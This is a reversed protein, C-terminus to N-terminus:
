ELFDLLIIESVRINPIEIVIKGEEIKWILDLKNRLGVARDLQGAISVILQVDHWEAIEEIPRLTEDRVSAVLHVVIRKGMEQEYATLAIVEPANELRVPPEAGAAWRVAAAILERHASVGFELFRNGLPPAFYVVRGLDGPQSLMVAPFGTQEGLPGYHVAAGGLLSAVVQASVPVVGMQIGGTPILKGVPLQVPLEHEEELLMYVDFGGFQPPESIYFVGFLESFDDASTRWGCEDYMGTEYSAVVGGGQAVFQRILEKVEATHCSANPLVLVQYEGLRQLDAETLIDFLLHEQLLAKAFGKLSGLHAPKDELHDFRELSSQSFLIAAYKLSQRHDLYDEVERAERLSDYVHAWAQHDVRDPYYRAFLPSGSNAILEAIALQIEEEPLGYQDFPTQAMMNLTLIQKGRGISQGYRMVLGYIWIPDNVMHRYPEFHVLDGIQASDLLSSAHALPVYWDVGFREPYWYEYEFGSVNFPRSVLNSLPYAGQFFVCRDDQKVLEYLSKRWNTIQRYRWGIFKQFVPDGWDEV